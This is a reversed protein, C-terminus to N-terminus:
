ACVRSKLLQKEKVNNQKPKLSDSLYTTAASEEIRIKENKLSKRNKAIKNIKQCKKVNKSLVYCKKKTKQKLSDSLSTTAAAEEIRITEDTFTAM